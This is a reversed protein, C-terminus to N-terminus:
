EPKFLKKANVLAELPDDGYGHVGLARDGKHGWMTVEFPRDEGTSDNIQMDRLGGRIELSHEVIAHKLDLVQAAMALAEKLSDRGGFEERLMLGLNIDTELVERLRDFEQRTMTTEEAM